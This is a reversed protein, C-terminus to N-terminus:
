NNKTFRQIKDFALNIIEDVSIMNSFDLANDDFEFNLEEEIQVISKVYLLSNLGMESFSLGEKYEIGEELANERFIRTIVNKIEAFSM